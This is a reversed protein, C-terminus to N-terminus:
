VLMCKSSLWVGIILCLFVIISINLSVQMYPPEGEEWYLHNGKMKSNWTAVTWKTKIVYCNSICICLIWFFVKEFMLNHAILGMRREQIYLVSM